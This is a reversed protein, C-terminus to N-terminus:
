SSDTMSHERNQSLGNVSGKRSNEKLARRRVFERVFRRRQDEYNVLYNKLRPYWVESESGTSSRASNTTSKIQSNRKRACLLFNGIAILAILVGFTIAVGAAYDSPIPEHSGMNLILVGTGSAVFLIFFAGPLVKRTTDYLCGSCPPLAQESHQSEM